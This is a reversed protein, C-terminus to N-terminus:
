FFTMCVDCKFSTKIKSSSCLGCKDKFNKHVAKIHRELAKNTTFIKKGIICKFWKGEHITLIHYKLSKKCKYEVECIRWQFQKKGQHISQVHWRVIKLLTVAVFIAHSHNRTFNHTM